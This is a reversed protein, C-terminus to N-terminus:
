KSAAPKAFKNDDITQDHKIETFKRAWSGRADLGSLRITYPLKVGDIDRYDEFDYQEPIIGIMTSTLIVKRLLLGTESDFSLRLMRNDPAQGRLVIADRDGIKERGGPRMKPFPEQIKIVDYLSDQDKLRGLEGPPIDRTGRQNQMWGSTGDFAQIMTGQPSTVTSLVKGPAKRYIEVPMPTGNQGMQNGTLVVSTFKAAADRGGVAQVYKDFVQEAVPAAGGPRPPQSEANAPSQPLSPVAVPHEHGQHCTWCTIEPRGNFSTKNIDTVMQIMKRATQKMQKDDKEYEPPGDGSRVHCADCGRAGVAAQMYGMVAPIQSDPLGKLAQINKFTQEATKQEDTGAGVAFIIGGALFIFTMVLAANAWVRKWDVRPM